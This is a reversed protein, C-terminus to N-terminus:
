DQEVPPPVVSQAGDGIGYHGVQGDDLHALGLVVSVQGSFLELDDVSSVRESLQDDGRILGVFQTRDPEGDDTDPAVGQAALTSLPADDTSEDILPILLEDDALVAGPGSVVVYRADAVPLVDLDEPDAPSPEVEIFGADRLDRVLVPETTVGESDPTTTTADASGDLPLSTTPPQGVTGDGADAKFPQTADGLLFGLRSALGSRLLDPDTSSIGLVEALDEREAEDDLVLRDTLWLAGEYNAGADLLSQVVQEVMEEDVGRVGLMTVSVNDLQGAMMQPGALEAVQDALELQREVADNELELSENQRELAELQSRLTDVTAKDIFNAGLVLGIGLAMFIATISIIHYRLNIM